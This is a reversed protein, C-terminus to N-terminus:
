PNTKNKLAGQLLSAIGTDTLATSKLKFVSPGANQAARLETGSAPIIEGASVHAGASHTGIYGRVLNQLRQGMTQGRTSANVDEVNGLRSATRQKLQMLSGETDKLGRIDAVRGYHNELNQYLADRSAKEATLDAIKGAAGKHRETGQALENKGHYAANDANLRKRINDLDELTYEKPAYADQLKSGDLKGVKTRYQNAEDRIANQLNDPMDPTIKSEIAKAIVEGSVTQNKIPELYGKYRTELKSLTQQIATPWDRVGTTKITDIVEPLASKVLGVTPPQGKPAVGTANTLRNAAFEPNLEAKMASAEPIGKAMIGALTINGLTGGPSKTDILNLPNVGELTAGLGSFFGKHYGAAINNGYNELGAQVNQPETQDIINQGGKAAETGAYGTLANGISSKGIKGLFADFGSPQQGGFKADNAANQAKLKSLIEPPVGSPQPAFASPFDKSIQSKIVDDTANADFKGYSGNPLKVYRYPDPM